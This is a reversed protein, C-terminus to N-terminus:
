EVAADTVTTITKAIWCVCCRSCITVWRLSSSSRRARGSASSWSIAASPAESSSSSAKAPSFMASRCRAPEGSSRRISCGDVVYGDASTASGSGIPAYPRSPSVRVAASTSLRPEISQSQRGCKSPSGTKARRRAPRPRHDSRWGAPRDRRARGADSGARTGRHELRRPRDARRLEHRGVAHDGVDAPRWQGVNQRTRRSRPARRDPVPARRTRDEHRLAGRDTGPAGRITPSRRCGLAGGGQPQRGVGGHGDPRAGTVSTSTSGSRGSVITSVAASRPGSVRIWGGPRMATVAPRRRETAAITRPCRSRRDRRRRRRGSGADRQSQEGVRGGARWDRRRRRRERLPEAGAAVPVIPVGPRTVRADPDARKESDAEDVLGPREEVPQQVGASEVPRPERRDEGDVALPHRPLPLRIARAVAVTTGDPEPVAGSGLVLEVVVAPHEVRHPQEDPGAVPEVGLGPPGGLSEGVLDRTTPAGRVGPDPLNASRRGVVHVGLQHGPEREISRQPDGLDLADGRSPAPAPCGLALGDSVVHRRM